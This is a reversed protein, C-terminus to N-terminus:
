GTYNNVISNANVRKFEDKNILAVDDRLVTVVENQSDFMFDDVVVDQGYSMIKYAPTRKWNKAINTLSWLIVYPGTSAVITTEKSNLLTNFVAKTFRLEKTQSALALQTFHEPRLALRKPVPKKDADFYKQFGLSGANKQHKGIKLDILLLYTKCTALLWRGDKSVDIGVFAEGLAPLSSKANVGLRDYLRIGGDKLGVAIFGQDTVTMTEFGNNKTKYAKFTNDKVIKKGSLRPDIRFLSNASIGNLTQENTLGAFKSIPAFSQLQENDDADWAEVVEGKTLDVKYIKSDASDNKTLLLANDGQHLMTRKALLSKGNLDKLGSISTVFGLGEDDRKYVGLSDGRTVYSRDKAQGIALESNKFKSSLFKKEQKFDEDDDYEDESDSAVFLGNPRSNRTKLGTQIIKSLAEEDDLEDHADVYEDSESDSTDDIDIRGFADEIYDMSDSEKQNTRQTVASYMARFFAKQFGELGEFASFKLMLSYATNTETSSGKTSADVVYHNFIFVKYEFNFAPNMEQSLPICFAFKETTSVLCYGKEKVNIIKIVIHPALLLFSDSAPDFVRLETESRYLEDGQVDIKKLFMQRPFTLADSFKDLEDEDDDDDHDDHDDDDDDDDDDTDKLHRSSDGYGYQIDRLNKLGQLGLLDEERDTKPDYVFENLQDLEVGASSKQYKLEYLCRYLSAMFHDLENYKIDEDVVFEFLDGIDGNMDKWAIARTGDRKTFIRVKLDPALFFVREDANRVDSTAGEDDDDDDAEDTVQSSTEGEEYARIVALQYLYPTTTQKITIYADNYLCELAGKPLLPSRTLFLKGQPILAVEDVPSAGIFKKLFNM